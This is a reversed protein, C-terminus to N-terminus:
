EDITSDYTLRNYIQENRASIDQFGPNIAFSIKSNQHTFSTLSSWRRSTSITSSSFHSLLHLRVRSSINQVEEVAPLAQRSTGNPRLMAARTWFLCTEQHRQKEQWTSASSGNGREHNETRRRWKAVQPSENEHSSFDPFLYFHIHGLLSIFTQHLLTEHWPPPFNSKVQLIVSYLWRVRGSM